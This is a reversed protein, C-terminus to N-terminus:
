IGGSSKPKPSALSRHQSSQPQRPCYQELQSSGLFGIPLQGTRTMRAVTFASIEPSNGHCTADKSNLSRTLQFGVLQCHSCKRLLSSQMFINIEKIIHLVQDMLNKALFFEMLNATKKEQQYMQFDDSQSSKNQTNSPNQSKRTVLSVANRILYSQLFLKLISNRLYKRKDRTIPISQFQTPKSKPSTSRLQVGDWIGLVSNCLVYIPAQLSEEFRLAVRKFRM